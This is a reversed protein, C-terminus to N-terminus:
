VQQGNVDANDCLVSLMRDVGLDSMLLRLGHSTLVEVSEDYLVSSVRGAEVAELPIAIPRNKTVRVKVLQIM